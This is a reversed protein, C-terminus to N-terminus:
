CPDACVPHCGSVAFVCMFLSCVVCLVSSEAFSCAACFGGWEWMKVLFGLDEREGGVHIHSDCM